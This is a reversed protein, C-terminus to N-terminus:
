PQISRKPSRGSGVGGATAATPSHRTGKPARARMNSSSRARTQLSRAFQTLKVRGPAKPTQRAAAEGRASFLGKCARARKGLSCSLSELLSGLLSTVNSHPVTISRILSEALRSDVRMRRHGWQSIWADRISVRPHGRAPAPLVQTARTAGLLWVRLM